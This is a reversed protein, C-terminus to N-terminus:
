KGSELKLGDIETANGVVALALEKDTVYAFEGMVKSWRLDSPMLENLHNEYLKRSLSDSCDGFPQTLLERGINCFDSVSKLVANEFSSFNDNKPNHKKYFYTDISKPLERMLCDDDGLGMWKPVGDGGVLAFGLGILGTICITIIKM